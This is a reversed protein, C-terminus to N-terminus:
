GGKFHDSAIGIEDRLRSLNHARDLARAYSANDSRLTRGHGTIRRRGHRTCPSSPEDRLLARLECPGPAKEKERATVRMDTVPAGRVASDVPGLLRIRAVVPRTPIVMACLRASNDDRPTKRNNPVTGIPEGNRQDNSSVQCQGTRNSPIARRRPGIRVNLSTGCQCRPVSKSVM